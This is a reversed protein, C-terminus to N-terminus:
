THPLKNATRLEYKKGGVKYSFSYFYTKCSVMEMLKPLKSM